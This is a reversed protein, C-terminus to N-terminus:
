NESRRIDTCRALMDRAGSIQRWAVDHQLGPKPYIMTKSRARLHRDSSKKFSVLWTEALQCLSKGPFLWPEAQAVLVPARTRGPSWTKLKEFDSSASCVRTNPSSTLSLHTYRNLHMSALRLHM